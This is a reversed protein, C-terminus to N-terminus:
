CVYYDGEKSIMHKTKIILIIYLMLGKLYKTFLNFCAM